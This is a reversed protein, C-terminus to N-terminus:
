RQNEGVRVTTLGLQMPIFSQASNFFRSYRDQFTDLLNPKINGHSNLGTFEMDIAVCISERINNVISAALENINDGTVDM